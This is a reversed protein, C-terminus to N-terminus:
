IDKCTCPLQELQKKKQSQIIRLSVCLLSDFVPLKNLVYMTTCFITIIFASKDSIENYMENVNSEFCYM